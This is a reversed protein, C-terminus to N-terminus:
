LELKLRQNENFLYDSERTIRQNKAVDLTFRSRFQGNLEMECKLVVNKIM